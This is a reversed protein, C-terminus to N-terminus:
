LKYFIITFFTGPANPFKGLDKKLNPVDHSTYWKVFVLGLRLMFVNFYFVFDRITHKCIIFLALERLNKAFDFLLQMVKAHKALVRQCYQHHSMDHACQCSM